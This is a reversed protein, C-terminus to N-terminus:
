CCPSIRASSSASGSRSSLRVSIAAVHVPDRRGAAVPGSGGPVFSLGALPWGAVDVHEDEAVGVPVLEVGGEAGGLLAKVGSLADRM